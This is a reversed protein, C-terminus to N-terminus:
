GKLKVVMKGDPFAPDDKIITVSEVKDPSIRDLEDKTVKEGDIFIAIKSVAPQKEDKSLKFNVPLTYSVAVPKNGTMGPIFDPLSNVVEIAAKDLDERVSRVIEPDCVKGTESVIFRVVVRGEVNDAVASEPYKVNEALFKFLAVEGGPFQPMKEPIKQASSESADKEVKKITGATVVDVQDIAAASEVVAQETSSTETVKAASISPITGASADSIVSAVADLNTVALAAALAPVLALSRLRRGRTSKSDYMMAIRIKLNSHNLSNAPSPFRSGVAKKILLIQYQKMDVGSDIVGADADFEHVSKLERIMLWAAPNYWQFIAVAQAIILDLSHHRRVHVKEHAVIMAGDSLDKRPIIIRSFISFPTLKEDDSVLVSDGNVEVHHCRRIVRSIKAVSYLTILVTVAVGAVYLLFCWDIWAPSGAQSGNEVVNVAMEGFDVDTVSLASAAGSGRLIKAIPWASLAVVYIAMLMFRNLTPQKLRSLLWKYPLYLAVLLLSSAISYAFITGM